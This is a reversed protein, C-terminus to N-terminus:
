PRNFYQPGGADTAIMGPGPGGMEQPRMTPSLPSIGAQPVASLGQPPTASAPIMSGQGPRTSAMLAQLMRPDINAGHPIGGVQPPALNGLLNGAPGQQVRALQGAVAPPMGGTTGGMALKKIKGGKAAQIDDVGSFNPKVAAKNPADAKKDGTPKVKIIKVADGAPKSKEKKIDSGKFNPKVAAKSPVDLKGGAKYKKVTGEAKATRGGKKLKLEPKEGKEEKDIMKKILVKDQAEDDHVKGGEKKKMVKGGCAKKSAESVSGGCKM